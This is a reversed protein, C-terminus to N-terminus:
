SLGEPRSGNWGSLSLLLAKTGLSWSLKVKGGSVSLAGYKVANTALEHLVLGLTQVIGPALRIQPGMAEIRMTDIGVFPALQIEILSDLLVGKWEQDILLSNSQALGQVRSGFQKEFEAFNASSRATQRAMAQIVTFLNNTRHQLERMLVELHEHQRQQETVNNFTLVVGSIVNASTRYPRIRMIYAASEDKLNFQQEVVSLTRQVVTVDERLKDYSLLSM